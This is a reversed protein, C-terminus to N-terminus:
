IMTFILVICLILRLSILFMKYRIFDINNSALDNPGEFLLEQDM